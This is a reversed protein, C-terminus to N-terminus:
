SRPLFQFYKMFIHKIQGSDFRLRGMTYANMLTRVLDNSAYHHIYERDIIGDHSEVDLSFTSLTSSFAKSIYFLDNLIYVGYRKNQIMLSMFPRAGNPKKEVFTKEDDRGVNKFNYDKQEDTSLAYLFSDKYDQLAKVDEVGLQQLLWPRDKPAIIKSTEQIYAVIDLETFIPNYITATNGLFFVRVENRYPQGVTRDLTAYLEIVKEYEKPADFTGLYSTSDQAIFEDYVMNYIFLGGSKLKDEKSIYFSTGCQKSQEETEGKMQVYYDNGKMFVREIQIDTKDSIIRVADGFFRTKTLDLEDKTRRTYIFQRDNVCFDLLLFIATGTTKGCSRPGTIFNWPRNYTLARKVSFFEVDGSRACKDLYGYLNGCNPLAM